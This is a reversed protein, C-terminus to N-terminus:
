EPSNSSGFSYSGEFSSPDESDEVGKLSKSGRLYEVDIID